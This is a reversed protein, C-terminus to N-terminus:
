QHCFSLFWMDYFAQSHQKTKCTGRFSLAKTEKYKLVEAALQSM